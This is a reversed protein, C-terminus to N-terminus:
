VEEKEKQVVAVVGVVGVNCLVTTRFSSTRVARFERGSPM